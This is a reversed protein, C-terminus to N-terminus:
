RQAEPRNWALWERVVARLKDRAEPTAPELMTRAITRVLEDIEEDSPNM